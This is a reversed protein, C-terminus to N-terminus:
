AAEPLGGDQDVDVDDDLDEDALEGGLQEDAVPPEASAAADRTTTARQAHQAEEAHKNAAAVAKELQKLSAPLHPGALKKLAKAALDNHSGWQQRYTRQSSPLVIRAAYQEAAIVVIARGYLEGATKGADVYRWLWKLAADPQRADGYDIRLRGRTGDKRTKTVDQRLEGIVLRIGAVALHHIREGAQGYGSAYDPGLLSYVLFRAVDMSAPDVTSLNNMLSDGLDLNVGHAQEAVERLQRDRERHAEAVPDVPAGGTRKRDQRRQEALEAAKARLQEVTRKVATKVLERYLPRDVIIAAGREFEILVGAARAQDVDEETFRIPPGGYSHPTIQKHLKEAEAYLEETKKGLRLESIEHASAQNMYAAFAKVNGDRLASDLVWGPERALREAAWENGDALFAIVADLLGPSVNGIALLQDVASLAIVGEGIMQQATDPLELIKVRASVRAKPWGLAQGAGDESLGKDLMAKVARAEEYPNLQKRTINETAAAAETDAERIVIPIEQLRLETAAAVRHFGAVLEFKWGGLAVDGEAPQVVVPVLMGQLRISGALAHVHEADLARVNNAVHIEELAATRDTATTAM